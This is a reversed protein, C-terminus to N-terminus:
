AFIPYLGTELIIIEKHLSWIQMCIKILSYCFKCFSFKDIVSYQRLLSFTVNGIFSCWSIIGIEFISFQRFRVKKKSINEGYSAIGYYWSKSHITKEVSLINQAQKQFASHIRYALILVRGLSTPNVNTVWVIVPNQHPTVFKFYILFKINM